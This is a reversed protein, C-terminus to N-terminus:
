PARYIVVETERNAARFGYVGGAIGGVVMGSLVGGTDCRDRGAVAQCGFGAIVGGSLAGASYGGVAGLHGWIGRGKQRIKIEAVHDRRINEVFQGLDAVRRVGVFVGDPRLRLGKAFVVTGDRQGASFYEPHNSAASRLVGKAAASEPLDVQVHV